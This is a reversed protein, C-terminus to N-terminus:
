FKIRFHEKAQGQKFFVIGIWFLDISVTVAADAKIEEWAEQMGKSWYIDDFIMVSRENMKPLLMNFYNLTAEKRHNGDIFVFDISDEDSIVVPLVKDFNGVIINVNTIGLTKLNEKAIAATEPCGEISIIRGETVAEAFYATTIGLCTGLEVINSPQLENALRYLLQALRAPKLAAKALTKVLKQKNNNVHSGAGLDTITITREDKLLDSRLLEIKEFIKRPKVDYIVEDVLKYVFPSHIGHRTKSKLRHRIFAKVLSINLM